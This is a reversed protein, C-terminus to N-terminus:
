KRKRQAKQFQSINIHLILQLIKIQKFWTRTTWALRNNKKRMKMPTLNCAHVLVCLEFVDICM